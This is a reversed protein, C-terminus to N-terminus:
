IIQNTIYLNMVCLNEHGDVYITIYKEDEIIEWKSGQARFKPRSDLIYVEAYLLLSKHVRLILWSNSSRVVYIYINHMLHGNPTLHDSTNTHCTQLTKSNSRIINQYFNSIPNKLITTSTQEYM